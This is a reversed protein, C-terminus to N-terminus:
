FLTRRVTIQQRKDLPDRAQQGCATGAISSLSTLTSFPNSSM